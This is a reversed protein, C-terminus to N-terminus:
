KNPLVDKPALKKFETKLSNYIPQYKEKLEELTDYKMIESLLNKFEDYSLLTNSYAKEYKTIKGNYAIQIGFDLIRLSHFLSKKGIYDDGQQMKKKCKVWSNSAIASISNRLKAKNLTFYYEINEYKYDERLFLCELADIDHNEIKRFFETPSFLTINMEQGGMTTVITNSVPIEQDYIAIYDIDSKDTNTDYVFSGYPYINIIKDIDIQKEPINFYNLTVKLHTPKGKM